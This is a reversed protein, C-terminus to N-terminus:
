KCAMSSSNFANSDSVATHSRWPGARRQANVQGPAPELEAQALTGAPSAPPRTVPVTCGIMIAHGATADHESQSPNGYFKFESM